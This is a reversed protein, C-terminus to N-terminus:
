FLESQSLYSAGSTLGGLLTLGAQQRQAKRRHGAYAMDIDAQSELGWAARAANTRIMAAEFESMAATEQLLASPTGVTPDVGSAALAVHQAGRVQGAQLRSRQEHWAGVERAHGAEMRTFRAQQRALQYEEESRQFQGAASLAGQATSAAAAILMADVGM